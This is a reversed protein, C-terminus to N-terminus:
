AWWLPLAAPGVQLWPMRFGYEPSYVEFLFLWVFLCLCAFLSALAAWRPGFQGLLIALVLTAFVGVMM